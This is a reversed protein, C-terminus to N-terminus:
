WRVKKWQTGGELVSVYSSKARARDTVTVGTLVFRPDLGAFSM